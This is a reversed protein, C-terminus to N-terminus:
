KSADLSTKEGGGGNHHAASKIGTETKMTM